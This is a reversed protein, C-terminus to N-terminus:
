RGVYMCISPCKQGRCMESARDYTRIYKWWTRKRTEMVRGSRQFAKFVAQASGIKAAFPGAMSPVNSESAAAASKELSIIENTDFMSCTTENKKLVWSFWRWSHDQIDIHIYVQIYISLYISPYISLHISLDPKPNLDITFSRPNNTGCPFQVSVGDTGMLEGPHNRPNAVDMPPKWPYVMTSMQLSKKLQM